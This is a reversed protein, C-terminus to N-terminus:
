APDADMWQAWAEKFLKRPEGTHVLQYLVVFTPPVLWKEERSVPFEVWVKELKGDADKEGRVKVSMRTSDKRIVTYEGPQLQAYLEWDNWTETEGFKHVPYGNWFLEFPLPPKPHVQEGEPHSYVSIGPHQENEPRLAKHMAGAASKQTETLIDRLDDKSLGDKKATLAAILMEFKQDATLDAVATATESM